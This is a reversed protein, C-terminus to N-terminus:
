PKAKADRAKVADLSAKLAKMLDPQEPRTQPISDLDIAECSPCEFGEEGVLKYDSAPAWRLCHPCRVETGPYFEALTSM